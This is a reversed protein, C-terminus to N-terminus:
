GASPRNNEDGIRVWPTLCFWAEGSHWNMLRQVAKMRAEGEILSWATKEFLVDEALRFGDDDLYWNEDDEQNTMEYLRAKEDDTWLFNGKLVDETRRTIRFKLEEDRFALTGIEQEGSQSM